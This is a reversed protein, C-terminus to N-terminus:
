HRGVRRQSNRHATRRCVSAARNPTQETQQGIAARRLSMLSDIAILFVRLVVRRMEGEQLQHPHQEDGGARSEGLAGEDLGSDARCFRRLWDFEVREIVEDLRDRGDVVGDGPELPSRAVVALTEESQGLTRERRGDLRIGADGALKRFLVFVDGVLHVFRRSDGVLKSHALPRRDAREAGHM